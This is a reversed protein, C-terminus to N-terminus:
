TNTVKIGAFYNVGEMRDGPAFLDLPLSVLKVRATVLMSIVGCNDSIVLDMPLGSKSDFIVSKYYNAGQLPIDNDNMTLYIPQLAQPMVIWSITAGAAAAVRYDYLVATNYADLMARLDVGQASCCGAQLTGYAKALQAQGFIVKGNCYGSQMAAFDIDQMFGPNLDSTSPKLTNIVLQDSGNVGSVDSAWGGLLSAAQTTLGTASKRVAADILKQLKREFLVSNPTCIERWDTPTIKEEAVYGSCDIEYSASLNGRETTAECAMDCSSTTGVESELIRQEYILKATRTKGGGPVILQQIGTRNLPSWLFDWFPMSERLSASDCTNIYEDLRGQIDECPVLTSPALSM